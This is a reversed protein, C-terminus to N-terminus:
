PPSCPASLPAAAASPVQRPLRPLDCAITRAKRFRHEFPVFENEDRKRFKQWVSAAKPANGPPAAPHSCPLPVASGPPHFGQPISFRAAYRRARSRISASRRRTSRGTPRTKKRFDGHRLIDSAARRSRLHAYPALFQAVRTAGRAPKTHCRARSILGQRPDCSTFPAVRSRTSHPQYGTRQKLEDPSLM